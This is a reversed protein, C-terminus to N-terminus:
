QQTRQRPPQALQRLEELKKLYPGVKAKMHEAFLTTAALPRLMVEFEEIQGENSFRILDIGKIQKSDVEASFELAVNHADCFFTREYRFNTFTSLAASLITCVVSSGVYANHAIPSRFTPTPAMLEHLNSFDKEDVMLHWRELTELTQSTLTMIM